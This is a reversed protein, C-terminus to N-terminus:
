TIDAGRRLLETKYTNARQSSSISLGSSYSTGAYACQIADAKFKTYLIYLHSDSILRVDSDKEKMAANFEEISCEKYNLM